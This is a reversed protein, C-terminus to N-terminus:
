SVGSPEQPSPGRAAHEAHVVAPMVVSEIYDKMANTASHVIRWELQEFFVQDGNLERLRTRWFGPDVNLGPLPGRSAPPDTAPVAPLPSAAVDTTADPAPAASAAHHVAASAAMNWVLVFLVAMLFCEAVVMWTLPKRLLKRM